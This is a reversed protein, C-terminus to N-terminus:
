NLEIIHADWEYDCYNCWACKGDYDAPCRWFEDYEKFKADIKEVHANLLKNALEIAEEHSDVINSSVLDRELIEVVLYKSM